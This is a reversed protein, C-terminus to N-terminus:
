GRRVVELAAARQELPWVGPRTPDVLRELHGPEGVGAPAAGFVRPRRAGQRGPIVPAPYMSDAMATFGGNPGPAPITAVGAGPVTGPEIRGFEVLMVAVFLLGVLAVLVAGTIRMATTDDVLPEVVGRHRPAPRPGIRHAAM